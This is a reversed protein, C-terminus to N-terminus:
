REEKNPVSLRLAWKQNPSGHWLSLRKKGQIVNPGAAIISYKAIALIFSARSIVYCYEAQLNHM